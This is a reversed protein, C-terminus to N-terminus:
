RIDEMQPKQLALLKELVGLMLFSKMKKKLIGIMRNNALAYDVM